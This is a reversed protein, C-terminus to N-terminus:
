VHISISLSEDNGETLWFVDCVSLKAHGTNLSVVFITTTRFTNERMHIMKVLMFVNLNLKLHLYATEFIYYFVRLLCVEM